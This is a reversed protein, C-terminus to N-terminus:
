RNLHCTWFCEVGSIPVNPQTFALNKQEAFAGPDLLPSMKCTGKHNYVLFISMSCIVLTLKTSQRYMNKVSVLIM